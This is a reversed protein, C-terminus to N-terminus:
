KDKPLVLIADAVGRTIPVGLTEDAEGQPINLVKNNAYLTSSGGGDLNVATRCGLKYMFAALEPLTMGLSGSTQSKEAVAFVWQGNKLIGVATRAHRRDIFVSSISESTFDNLIKGNAILLPIGGVINDMSQWRLHDRKNFFPLIQVQFKVPDGKTLTFELRPVKPGISYVYGNKPIPTQGAPVVEVVQNNQIVIDMGGPFSDTTPGYAHTYLIARTAVGPQNLGYVQFKKQAIELSTQTQIRDMLIKDQPKSTRQGTTTQQTTGQTSTEVANTESMKSWGLAGRNKYALGFWLNDIKLVGAPLGDMKEGMRFFGGNIGAIANTRKALTEVTEIGQVTDNAHVSKLIFLQPDITLVHIIQSDRSQHKEYSLGKQLEEARIEESFLSTACGFAFGVIFLNILFFHTIRSAM